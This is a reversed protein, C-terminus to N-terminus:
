GTSSHGTITEMLPASRCNARQQSSARLGVELSFTHAPVLPDLYMILGPAGIQKPVENGVRQLADPVEEIKVFWDNRPKSVGQLFGPSV